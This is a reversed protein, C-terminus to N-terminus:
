VRSKKESQGSVCKNMRTFCVAYLNFWAWPGLAHLGLCNFFSSHSMCQVREYIKVMGLCMNRKYSLEVHISFSGTNAGHPDKLDWSGVGHTSVNREDDDWTKLQWWWSRDRCGPAAPHCPLAKCLIWYDNLLTQAMCVISIQKKFISQDHPQCQDQLQWPSSLGTWFQFVHTYVFKTAIIQVRDVMVAM